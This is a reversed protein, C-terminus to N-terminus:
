ALSEMRNQLVSVRISRLQGKYDIRVGIMGSRRRLVKAQRGSVSDSVMQKSTSSLRSSGIDFEITLVATASFTTAANNDEEVTMSFDLINKERWYCGVLWDIM